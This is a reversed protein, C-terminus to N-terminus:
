ERLSDIGGPQLLQTDASKRSTESESESRCGGRSQKLTWVSQRAGAEATTESHKRKRIIIYAFTLCSLTRRRHGQVTERGSRLVCPSAGMADPQKAEKEKTRDDLHHNEQSTGLRLFPPYRKAAVDEVLTAVSSDESFVIDFLVCFCVNTNAVGTGNAPALGDKM